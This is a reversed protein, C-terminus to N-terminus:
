FKLFRLFKIQGIKEGNGLDKVVEKASSVVCRIGDAKLLRLLSFTYVPEGTVLITTDNGAAMELIEKEKAKAMDEIERITKGDPISPFPIDIIEGFQKAAELKKEEWRNSPYSSFNIFIKKSM